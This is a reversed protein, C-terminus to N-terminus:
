HEPDAVTSNLSIKNKLLQKNIKECVLTAKHKSLPIPLVVIGGAIPTMIKPSSKLDGNVWFGLRKGINESTAKEMIQQGAKTLLLSVQYSKKDLTSPETAFIHKDSIIVDAGIRDGDIWKCKLTIPLEDQLSIFETDYALSISKRQLKIPLIALVSFIILCMISVNRSKNKLLWHQLFTFAFAVLLGITLCLPWEWAAFRTFYVFFGIVGTSIRYSLVASSVALALVVWHPRNSQENLKNM